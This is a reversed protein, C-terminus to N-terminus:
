RKVDLVDSLWKFYNTPKDPLDKIAELRGQAIAVYKADPYEKILNNYYIRSSRYERKKEYYWGIAFERKAKEEHVNARVQLLREREEGLQGRFQTLTQRAIDDAQLLPTVDYYPGQYVRLKCNVGLVHAPLQHKSKPYEKRILDYYHGAEDFRGRVYHANGLMFLAEDALPGRPDNIRVAEMACIMNGFTDFLTQTKDSFNPTVPWHNQVRDVRDWYVGIAYLRSITTDLYRTNSFKKLLELYWDEAKGYRDAFFYSEAMFFIADEELPSDPWRDAAEAFKAAADDFKRNHYLEVGDRFAAKAITENPGYGWAAKIKKYVKAPDLDSIDFGDNDKDKDKDSDDSDWKPKSAIPADKISTGNPGATNTAAPTDVPLTASVPRVVGPVGDAAQGSARRQLWADYDQATNPPPPPPTSAKPATQCGPLSGLAM